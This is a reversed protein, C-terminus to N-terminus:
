FGKRQINQPNASIKFVRTLDNGEEYGHLWLTKAQLRQLVRKQPSNLALMSPHYLPLCMKQFPVDEKNTKRTKTKSHKLSLSLSLREM